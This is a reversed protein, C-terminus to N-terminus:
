LRIGHSLVPAKHCAGKAWHNIKVNKSTGLGKLLDLLPEPSGRRFFVGFHLMNPHEHDM